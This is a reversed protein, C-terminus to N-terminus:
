KGKTYKEIAAKDAPSLNVDAVGLKRRADALVPEMEKRIKAKQKELELAAIDLRNKDEPKLKAPDQMLLMGMPGTKFDNDLKRELEQMRTVTASYVTRAKDQSLGERTAATAANQAGVKLREIERDLAKNRTDVDTGYLRSGSELGQRQSLSGQEYAKQGAGIGEKVNARDIDILGTRAKQVDGFEKLKAARMQDDYNMGAQAAGALVGYRRGGAGILARKIGEQRLREPDYQEKYMGQLGAIGEDYVKRQEPTLAMKSQIREEESLQRAAPDIEANKLAAAQLKAGFDNAPAPGAPAAPAGAAGPLGAIGPPKPMVPPIPPMPPRATPPVAAQPGAAATAQAESVSAPRTPAVPAVPAVPTPTGQMAGKVAGVDRRNFAPRDVGAAAMEGAYAAEAEQLAAQASALEQQVAAYAEPDNRQQMTGFSQLKQQAARRRARAADVAGGGAYGVAGGDAYGVIGGAAMAKPQAAMAAGPASAVGGMLKQMMAQQDGAQKQATDGRQEALENKTIGEVEQRRQDAVTMNAQGDQANQQAMQLQMQRAAADKQSKIKQLALLDLLDQSMAYRQELPKTNGQYASVRDDVSGLGAMPSAKGPTPMQPAQPRQQM